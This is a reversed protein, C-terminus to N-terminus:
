DLWVRIPGFGNSVEAGPDRIYGQVDTSIADVFDNFMPIITGGDDRVMRGAQQYLAKRSQPDATARADALLSDFEPRVWRADNWEADSRYGLSYQLDQVPRGGWYAAAFPAVNWVGSWYGDAPERKVVIEIGAQAAHQQYLSAADVAGTFAGDSTRLVIPGKHGSKRYHERARDPDYHRQPIGEPFLPYGANIPFDNGITGFGHLIRKVMEERNIAYKLALRLEPNDFPETDTRMYFSYYARGPTNEISVRPHRGLLRATKVDVLNIMHVRGSQLASARATQDNIVLLEISDVHGVGTRWHGSFKRFVYRVGHEVVDVTYPGTGIGAAPDIYGGGPQIILHYDTLLYPLDANPEHLTLVMAHAGDAEISRIGRMLGFAASRANEDSHRLLSKVADDSTMRKGNHFVVDDRLELRWVKTGDIPEFSRALVPVVGNGYPELETLTEGWYRGYNNCVQSAYTAPDLSDTSNGGGFGLM